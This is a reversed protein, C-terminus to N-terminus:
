PVFKSWVVFYVDIGSSVTINYWGIYSSGALKMFTDSVMEWFQDILGWILNQFLDPGVTKM